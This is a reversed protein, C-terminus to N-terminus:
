RNCSRMEWPGPLNVLTGSWIVDRDSLTGTYDIAKKAARTAQILFYLVWCLQVAASVLLGAWVAYTIRGQWPVPVPICAVIGAAALTWGLRMLWRHFDQLPYEVAWANTHLKDCFELNKVNVVTSSDRMEQLLKRADALQQELPVAPQNAHLALRDYENLIEKARAIQDHISLVPGDVLSAWITREGSVERARRLLIKLCRYFEGFCAVACLGILVGLGVFLGSAVGFPRLWFFLAALLFLGVSSLSMRKLWLSADDFRDLINKLIDENQKVTVQRGVNRNSYLVPTAM